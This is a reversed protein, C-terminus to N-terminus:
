SVEMCHFVEGISTKEKQSPCPKLTGLLVVDSGKDRRAPIQEQDACRVYKKSFCHYAWITARAYGFWEGVKRM